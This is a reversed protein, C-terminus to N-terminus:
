KINKFCYNTNYKKVKQSNEPEKIRGLISLLFFMAPFLFAAPNQLM